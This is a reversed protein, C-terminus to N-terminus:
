FSPPSLVLIAELKRKGPNTIRHPLDGSFTASDGARLHFASGAVTVEAIGRLVLLCEEGTHRSPTPVSAAGGPLSVHLVEFRGELDPSVLEYHAGSDPLSLLKRGSRRVVIQRDQADVLLRFMPEDLAKALRQLTVLTPLITGAEIQSVASSSLRSKKALTAVTMGHATRLTRLARGVSIDDDFRTGGTAANETPPREGSLGSTERERAGSPEATAIDSSAGTTTM